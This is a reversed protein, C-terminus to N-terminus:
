NLNSPIGDDRISRRDLRRGSRSRREVIVIKWYAAHIESWKEIVDTRIRFIDRDLKRLMSLKNAFYKHSETNQVFLFEREASDALQNIRTQLIEWDRCCRFVMAELFGEPTDERFQQTDLLKAKQGVIINPSIIKKLAGRAHIAMVQKLSRLALRNLETAAAVKDGIVFHSGQSDWARYTQSRIDKIKHDLEFLLNYLQKEIELGLSFHRTIWEEDEWPNGKGFWDFTDDPPPLPDDEVVTISDGLAAICEERYEERCEETMEPTHWRILDFDAISETGQLAGNNETEDLAPTSSYKAAAGDPKSAEERGRKATQDSSVSPSANAFPTKSFVAEIPIGMSNCGLKTLKPEQTAVHIVPPEAAVAALEAAVKIMRLAKAASIANTPKALERELYDLYKPDMFKSRRIRAESKKKMARM